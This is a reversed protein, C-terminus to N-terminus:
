CSFFLAYGCPCQRRRRPAFRTHLTVSGGLWEASRVAKKLRSAAEPHLTVNGFSNADEGMPFKIRYCSVGIAQLKAADRSAPSNGPM